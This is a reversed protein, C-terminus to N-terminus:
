LLWGLVWMLLLIPIPVGLLWLLGARAMKVEQNQHLSLPQAGAVKRVAVPRLPLAAQVNVRRAEHSVAIAKSSTRVPRRVEFPRTGGSAM